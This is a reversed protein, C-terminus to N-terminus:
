AGSEVLHKFLHQQELFGFPARGEPRKRLVGRCDDFVLGNERPLPRFAASWQAVAGEEGETRKWQRTGISAPARHSRRNGFGRPGQLEYYNAADVERAM